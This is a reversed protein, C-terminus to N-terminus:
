LNLNYRWFGKIERLIKENTKEDCSSIDDGIIFDAWGLNYAKKNIGKYNSNNDKGDGCDNWGQMYFQLLIEDKVNM